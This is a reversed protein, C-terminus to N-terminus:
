MSAATDGYINAKFVLGPKVMLVDYTNLTVLISLRHMLFRFFNHEKMKKLKKERHCM